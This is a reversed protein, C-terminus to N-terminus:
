GIGRLKSQARAIREDVRVVIHQAGIEVFIVRAQQYFGLARRYQEQAAATSGVRDHADGQEEHLVGINNFDNGEGLRDGIERDIALAQEYYKIAKDYQGLSSYANGLNGLQNGQGRRDGIEQQITLGQEYYKIAKDYQGLSSYANGL